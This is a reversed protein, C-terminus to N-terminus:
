ESEHTKRDENKVEADIQPTFSQVQSPIPSQLPRESSPFQQETELAAQGTASSLMDAHRQDQGAHRAIHAGQLVEAALKDISSWIRMTDRELGGDSWEILCDAESLSMDPVVVVKSTIGHHGVLEQLRLAIADVHNPHLRVMLRPTEGIGLMVQQVANIIEDLGHHATYHPLLKRAIALAIQLTMERSQAVRASEESLLLTLRHSLAELVVVFRQQQTQNAELRGQQLGQEVGQQFAANRVAVLEEESFTPPPPPEPEEPEEVIEPGLTGGEEESSPLSEQQDFRVDFLFKEM